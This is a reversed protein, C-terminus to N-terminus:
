RVEFDVTAAQAGDIYLDIRYRGVPWANVSPSRDLSFYFNDDGGTIEASDIQSNADYGKASVLVWVGTVVTSKPANQLSFFCYFTRENPSFARTKRTDAADHAMHANVIIPFLPAPPTDTATATPFTTNTPVVTNTPFRTVTPLLTVTPAAAQTQAIATQVVSESPQCSTVFLIAIIVSGYLLYKEWTPKM